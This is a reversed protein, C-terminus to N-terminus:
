ITELYLVCFYNREDTWKDRLQFSKSALQTFEEITYKYSNETHIREGEKFDFRADAVQVTHDVRSVLHMEVRGEDENYLAQHDFKSLDFDSGLENNIRRLINKNFAETIGQPDDYAAQLVGIDKKLDIGILLGGNQGVWAAIRQLFHEARDPEFNGITSGPFYVVKKEITAPVNPLTFSRTYDACVPKVLLDPYEERLQRATQNLYQESIDIPIYAALQETQRLLIRSKRSSGSGLEILMCNVGLWDVMEGIHNQMISLEADTPYYVELDSIQEFLRSGCEDYFFKSPLTKSNGSLGKVVEEYFGLPEGNINGM